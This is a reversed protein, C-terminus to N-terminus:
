DVAKHGLLALTQLSRQYFYVDKINIEGNQVSEVIGIERIRQNSQARQEKAEEVSGKCQKVVPKIGFEFPGDVRTDEKMVYQQAAGNVRVVEWHCNPAIKNM